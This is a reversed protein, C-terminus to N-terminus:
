GLRGLPLDLLQPQQDPLQLTPPEAPARLLEVGVLQLEAQFVELLGHRGGLRRLLLQGRPFLVGRGGRTRRRLRPAKGAWRGRTSTRTSTASLLQGQQPSAKCTIPSSVLSISSM